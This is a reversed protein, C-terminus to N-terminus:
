GELNGMGQKWTLIMSTSASSLGHKMMETFVITSSYVTINLHKKYTIGHIIGEFINLM